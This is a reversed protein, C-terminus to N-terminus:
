GRGARDRAKQRRSVLRQLGVSVLFWLVLCGVLVIIRAPTPDQILGMISSGLLTMVAIGPLMGLLTGLIYDRFGVHSAGSVLNIILFPAVPAVRLFVVAVIGRRGLAESLRNVTAGAYRRVLRKGLLHGLGFSIVASLIAGTSAYVFGMAPGFVMATVTILVTIPFGALGLAVYGGLVALPTWPLGRLAVARDYFVRPDLGERLPTLEWLAIVAALVAVIFFGTWLHRSLPKRSPGVPPEPVQEALFRDLDIPEEPDGIRNLLAVGENPEALSADVPVLTRAPNREALADIATVLSGGSEALAGAVAERPCGLHEALLGDRWRALADRDERRTAEVTTNTETDLGMSRNALNASGITMVRDDVIMLKSHVKVDHSEGADDRIVPALLRIRDGAGTEALRAMFTARGVGMTTEELWDMATRPGVMVVELDPNERLRRVLADAVCDATLYQNEIYLSREAGEIAACYLDCVERVADWRKGAPRTRSIGVPVSRLRPPVDDPWLRRGSAQPVPRLLRSTAHHWRERALDGLARAAAGDVMLTADHVPPYAEGGPDRRRPDSLRHDPTDWRRITVDMGGCFALADDIVVVKEHHSAEMPLSDDLHLHVRDPTTWGLTVTPLPERDLAYLLTYDWLLVHVNLDPRREVLWTLLERLLRPAEDGPEPAADPGVLDTRGDVDWGVLLVQREAKLLARRLEHFYAAADVLLAARDATEVRWAVGPRDLLRPAAAPPQSLPQTTASDPAPM